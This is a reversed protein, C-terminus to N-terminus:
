AAKAGEETTSVIEGDVMKLEGKVVKLVFDAVRNMGALLDTPTSIIYGGSAGMRIPAADIKHTLIRQAMLPDNVLYTLSAITRRFDHDSIDIGTKDKLKEFTHRLDRVPNGPWKNSELIWKPHKTPSDMRPKIVHEVLYDCLPVPIMKKAKNGKQKAPLIYHYRGDVAKRLNDWSLSGMVSRRFGTFFEILLYDRATAPPYTHIWHWFAPLQQVTIMGDAPEEREFVGDDILQKCPNAKIVGSEKLDNFLIKALRLAYTATALGTRGEVPQKRAKNSKRVIEQIDSLAEQAMHQTIRDVREGGWGLAELHAFSKKYGELTDPAWRAKRRAVYSLFAQRFTPVIAGTTHSEQSDAYLRAAEAQASAFTVKHVRGLTKKQESGGEFIRCIWTKTVKGDKARPRMIRLGFYAYPPNAYHEVFPKEKPPAIALAERETTFTSKSDM